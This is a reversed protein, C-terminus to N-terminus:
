HASVGGIKKILAAWKAVDERLYANYHDPDDAVVTGGQQLIKEEFAKDAAAQKIVAYLKDVIPRPTGAPALLGFMTGIEIDLGQEAFTPVDPLVPLRDKSAVGLAKMQGASLMGQASIYTTFTMQVQGSLVDTLAPAAGTYPIHTIDLKTVQKFMEGALHPAGGAGSSSFNLEGPHKKGYAILGALSDGAFGAKTVLMMPAFAVMTIGTFNKIPDYPTQPIVAPNLTLNTSTFLLTYGDPAARAVLEAGINGSAGARNDVIVPQKLARTLREATTRALIDTSGGPAWPVVLRIPRSPYDTAALSTRPGAIGGIASALAVVMAYAHAAHRLRQNM